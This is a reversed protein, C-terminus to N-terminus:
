KQFHKELQRSIERWCRRDVLWNALILQLPALALTVASTAVLVDSSPFNSPSNAWCPALSAAVISAVVWFVASSTLWDSVYVHREVRKKMRLAELHRGSMKLEAMCHDHCLIVLYEFERVKRSRILYLFFSPQKAQPIEMPLLYRSANKSRAGGKPSIDRTQPISIETAM